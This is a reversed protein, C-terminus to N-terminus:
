LWQAAQGWAGCPGTFAAMTAKSPTSAHWPTPIGCKTTNDRSGSLLKDGHVVLCYIGGDHGELTREEKAHL